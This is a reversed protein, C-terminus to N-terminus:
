SNKYKPKDWQTLSTIQCSLNVKGQYFSLKLEGEAEISVGPELWLHQDHFFDLFHVWTYVFNNDSDRESSYADFICFRGKKSTKETIEKKSLTGLFHINGSIMDEGANTVSDVESANITYIIDDERKKMKLVGTVMVRDGPKIQLINRDLGNKSVAVEIEQFQGSTDSIKLSIRFSSYPRNQRDQKAQGESIATGLLSAKCKIM